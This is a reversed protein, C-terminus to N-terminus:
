AQFGSNGKQSGNPEYPDSLFVAPWKFFQFSPGLLVFLDGNKSFENVERSFVRFIQMNPVLRPIDSTKWSAGRLFRKSVTEPQLCSKFSIPGIRGSIVMIWSELITLPKDTAGLHVFHCGFLFSLYIWVLISLLDLFKQLFVRTEKKAVMKDVHTRCFFPQGNQFSSVHVQCSLYTAIRLFNM